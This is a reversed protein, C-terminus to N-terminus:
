RAMDNREKKEDEGHYKERGREGRPMERERGDEWAM